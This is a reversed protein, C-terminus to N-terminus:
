LVSLLKISFHNLCPFWFTCLGLAPLACPMQGPSPLSARRPLFLLQLPPQLLGPFTLQPTVCVSTHEPFVRTEASPASHLLTLGRAPTPPLLLQSRTVVPGPLPGSFGTSHGVQCTQSLSASDGNWTLSGVRLNQGSGQGSGSARQPPSASPRPGSGFLAQAPSPCMHHAPLCPGPCVWTPLLSCHQSHPRGPHLSPLHPSPTLAGALPGERTRLIEPHERVDQHKM